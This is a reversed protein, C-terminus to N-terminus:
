KLENLGQSNVHNRADIGTLKFLCMSIFWKLYTGASIIIASVSCLQLRIEDVPNLLRPCGLSTKLYSKIM